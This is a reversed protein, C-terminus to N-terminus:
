RREARGLQRLDGENRTLRQLLGAGQFRRACELCYFQVLYGQFKQRQGQRFRRSKEPRSAMGGRLETVGRNQLTWGGGSVDSQGERTGLYRAHLGSPRLLEM